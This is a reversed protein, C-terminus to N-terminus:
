LIGTILRDARTGEWYFARVLVGDITHTAAADLEHM